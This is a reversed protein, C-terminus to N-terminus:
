GEKKIDKGPWSGKLVFGGTGTPAYSMLVDVCNPCHPRRVTKAIDAHVTAHAGCQECVYERVPM